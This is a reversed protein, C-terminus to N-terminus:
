KNAAAGGTSYARNKNDHAALEWHLACSVPSITCSTELACKKASAVRRTNTSIKLLVGLRSVLM